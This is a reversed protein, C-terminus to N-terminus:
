QPREPDPRVHERLRLLCELDADGNLTRPHFIFERPGTAPTKIVTALELTDMRHLRDLGWVEATHAVPWCGHLRRGLFRGAARTLRATFTTPSLLRYDPGRLWGGFSEGVAARLCGLVRPHLHLHHHSNIFACGQGAQRFVDWQAGLERRLATEPFRATGVSFGALAPSSGWPWEPLTLPQSDCLHVHWGLELAPTARALELAEATGPQGAMLSAGTLVGHRHAHVIAANVEPSLGFDDAIFHLSRMPRLLALSEPLNAAFALNAKSRRPRGPLM